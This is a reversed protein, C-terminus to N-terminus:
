GEAKMKRRVAYLMEKQADEIVSKAVEAQNDIESLILQQERKPRVKLVKERVAAPATRLAMIITETPVEEM